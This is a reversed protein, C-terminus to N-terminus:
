HSLSRGTRQKVVHDLKVLMPFTLKCEKHELRFVTRYSVNMGQALKELSMGLRRRVRAVDFNETLKVVEEVPRLEEQIELIDRQNEKAVGNKARRM